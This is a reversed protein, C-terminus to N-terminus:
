TISTTMVQSNRRETNNRRIKLTSISLSSGMESENIYRRANLVALFANFYLSGRSFSFVETVVVGTKYDWIYTGLLLTQHLCLLIGRNSTYLTLKSLIGGSRSSDSELLSPQSVIKASRFIICLSVTVYLDTLFSIVNTAITVKGLNALAAVDQLNLYYMAACVCALSTVSFLTALLCLVKNYWKHTGLKWSIYIYYCQM